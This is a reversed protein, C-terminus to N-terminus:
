DSLVEPEGPEGPEALWRDLDIRYVVRRGPRENLTWLMRTGREHAIDEPAPALVRRHRVLASPEGVWLDGGTRMDASTTLVWTGDVICAGQMRAPTAEHLELVTGDPIEGSAPDLEFRALRSDEGVGRFEGVVLRPGEPADELSVFSYRMRRTGKPTRAAFMAEQPLAYRHHRAGAPLRGWRERRVRVIEDIRFSRLGGFTDAVYIRDGHWAIGGAHVTIPRLGGRPGPEVLLVHRVRPRSTDTSTVFSLRTAVQRGRRKSFWSVVIVREGGSGQVDIGQPWWSPSFTERWGWRFGQEAAPAAARTRWAWRGRRSLLGALGIPEHVQLFGRRSEDDREGVSLGLPHAAM